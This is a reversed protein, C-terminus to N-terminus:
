SAVFVRYPCATLMGGSQQNSILSGLAEHEAISKEQYSAPQPQKSRWFQIFNTWVHRFLLGECGLRTLQINLAKHIFNGFHWNFKPAWLQLTHHVHSVKSPLPEHSAQQNICRCPWVRPLHEFLISQNFCGFLELNPQKKTQAGAGVM